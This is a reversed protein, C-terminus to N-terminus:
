NNIERKVAFFNTPVYYGAASAFVDGTFYGNCYGDWGWDCHIYIDRKAKTNIDICYRCGDAVWAHGSGRMYVICNDELLNTVSNLNMSEYGTTVNFGLNKILNYADRSNAGSGNPSYNMNVDKGIQYLLKATYDLAQFYNTVFGHQIIDINPNFGSDMTSIFDMPDSSTTTEAKPPGESLYKRMDSFYYLIQNYALTKKSHMMVLASAVAVCGAPCNLHERHVYKNFPAGQGICINVINNVIRCADEVNSDDYKKNGVCKLSMYDKLRDIFQAKAIENTLSFNGTSSYALLPNIRNDRSIISFGGNDAYNIVYALTDLPFTSDSARTVNPDSYIPSISVGIGYSQTSSNGTAKDAIALAETDSIKFDTTETQPVDNCRTLNEVPMENSCATMIVALLAAIVPKFNTKKMIIRISKWNNENFQTPFDM